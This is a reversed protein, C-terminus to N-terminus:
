LAAVRATKRAGRLAYGIGAFGLMMMAWVAPEPVGGAPIGAVDAIEFSNSSSDFRIADIPAAFNFTFRGNTQGSQQDGNATTPVYTALQAGTFAQTAGNQFSFTVTNYTDLSGIYVSVEDLLPTSLVEYQGGEVSLYQGPDRTLTSLAPAAGSGSTGTLFAADGSLAYGTPLAAPNSFDTILTEGSNLAAGYGVFGVQTAAHAAGAVLALAAALSILHTKM